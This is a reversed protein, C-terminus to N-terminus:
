ATRAEPTVQCTLTTQDVEYAVREERHNATRGIKM